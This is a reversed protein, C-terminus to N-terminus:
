RRYLYKSLPFKLSRAVKLALDESVATRYRTSGELPCSGGKIIFNANCLSSLQLLVDSMLGRSGGEVTLEHSEEEDLSDEALSTICQFIALLRELPFTGPGKMLLEQEAMEKQDMSKESAKRKRKHSDSVGTSDFLSADLTAPNRSALFASILLYKASTSMHFDIKDFDERVGPMRSSNTKKTEQNTEAKLLPQSRVQFTENLASAIHPRIHSFLRRKMEENPAVEKDSLPESYKKFLSSFAAALEDVQRTVRCFPRLVVDLFSAYLRSNTQNAMFIHRLDDETYDPFYLPIPEAYGINLYYTDPSTNSIFILGVEPMKLIDNLNFLFPLITSSKDWDRVCELNDFVLYVMTGDPRGSMKSSVKGSNGKLNTIVNELAERLYNVFDSPRECRKLSSYSHGSDKRHFLLQNLISEFLIRPSYCTICSSYIFPRNLHRFVQLTVSTKGTSPGGYVLIPFMPSNLPGLLRLLELIQSRRGPFSSFLDELRLPQQRFGLDNITPKYSEPPNTSEIATNSASYSRTARRTVQPSEETAM